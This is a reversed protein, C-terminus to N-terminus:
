DVWGDSVPMGRHDIYISFGLGMNKYGFDACYADRQINAVLHNGAPNSPYLVSCSSIEAELNSLKVSIKGTKQVDHYCKGFLATGLIFVGALIGNRINEKKM